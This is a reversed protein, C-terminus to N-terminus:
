LPVALGKDLLEQNLYRGERFIKDKDRDTFSYFVHGVYRGYIDIKNTKVMVFPTRAMQDRVYEYAQRGKPTDIPPADIGALRIRQEKLVQFGLDIRLILTDADIVRKVFAKYVYTAETPRILKKSKAEKGKPGQTEKFRGQKIAM